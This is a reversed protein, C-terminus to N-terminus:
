RACATIASWWLTIRRISNRIARSPIDGMPMLKAGDM